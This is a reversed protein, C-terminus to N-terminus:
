CRPNLFCFDSGNVLRTFGSGDPAFTYVGDDVVLALRDGAKSWELGHVHTAGLPGFDTPVIQHADTGDANMLWVGHSSDCYGDAVAIHTGDPSFTPYTVIGNQRVHSKFLVTAPGGDADVVFLAGNHCSKGEKYPETLGAFVVRSGDPSIAAGRPRPSGPIDLFASLQETVQTESGDANVVLLNEDGKEILLRRGDRSCDLVAGQVSAPKKCPVPGLVPAPSRLGVSPGPATSTSASATSTATPSAVPGVAPVGGLTLGVIAVAALALAIVGWRVGYPATAGTRVSWRPRAQPTAPIRDLVGDLVHDPLRTRGDELWSALLTLTERDATM